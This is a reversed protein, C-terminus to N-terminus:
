FGLCGNRMEVAVIAELIVGNTNRETKRGERM